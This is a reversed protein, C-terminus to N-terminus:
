CQNTVLIILYKLKVKAGKEETSRADRIEEEKGNFTSM